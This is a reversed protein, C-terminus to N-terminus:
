GYENEVSLFYLLRADPLSTLQYKKVSFQILKANLCGANQTRNQSM